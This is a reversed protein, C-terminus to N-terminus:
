QVSDFAKLMRDHGGTYLIETEPNWIMSWIGGRKNLYQMEKNINNEESCEWICLTKDHSASYLQGNHSKLCTLLERHGSLIHSPFYVEENEEEVLTDKIYWFGFLKFRDKKRTHGIICNNHIMYPQINYKQPLKANFYATGNPFRVRDLVM